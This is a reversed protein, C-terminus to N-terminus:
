GQRREARQRMRRVRADLLPAMGPLKRLQRGVGAPVRRLEGNMRRVRRAMAGRVTFPPPYEERERYSRRLERRQLAGRLPSLYRSWSEQDSIFRRAEESRELENPYKVYFGRREDLVGTSWTTHGGPPRVAYPLYPLSGGGRWRGGEQVRWSVCGGMTFRAWGGG